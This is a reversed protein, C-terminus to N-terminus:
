GRGRPAVSQRVVVHTGLVVHQAPREPDDRHLALRVATRGLEEHPIHVTTLAPHVDEAPSLDDYGVVSVEDPVGRGAERLAAVAGAAVPDDCAMIATFPLGEALLRRTGEYGFSRNLRGPRILRPDLTLGYAAMARRLGATRADTATNGEHGGLFVIREHGASLLHSAVAYAGGENDYEVVTVPLDDGPSPRGCLVLRSGAGDLAYALRAMRERYEPTDAIGGILFVADTRQERLMSVIALEREPDGDSACILCLRGELAAQRQVGGAITNFFPATVDSLIIAVTKTHSGALARAHANVVYDLDRIARMVKARTAPAVPHSSNLVRSVTAASVGARRAVDSVTAKPATGAANGGQSGDAGDGGSGAGGRRAGSRAM